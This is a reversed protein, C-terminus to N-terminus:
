SRDLRRDSEGRPLRTSSSGTNRHLPVSGGLTRVMFHAAMIPPIAFIVGNIPRILGGQPSRAVEYLVVVATLLFPIAASPQFCIEQLVRFFLGLLLMGVIVGPYSFNFYLEGIWSPGTSSKVHPGPGYNDTVWQGVIATEPKGPWLVRPIYSLFIYGISWGGQYPVLDPTDRVIICPLTLANLRHGTAQLGSTVWELPEVASTFASLAGLARGPDSLVEIATLTYGRQVVERYFQAVPYLVVLIAVGAVVWSIRIRRDHVIYPIAVMALATLFLRKSGTFFNFAVTPPILLMLLVLVIRLRYRIYVITLLAIGYFVASAIEGLVGSGARKPILGFQGGLFVTWGLPIMLLAVGLAANPSWDYRPKPVMSALGKGVPMYFGLLMMILGVLTVSQGAVVDWPAISKFDLRAGTGGESGFYQTFVPLVLHVMYSLMLLTIFVQRREPPRTQDVIVPLFGVFGTLLALGVIAMESSDLGAAAGGLFVLMSVVCLGIFSFLPGM